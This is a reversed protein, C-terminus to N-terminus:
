ISIFGNLSSCHHFQGPWNQQKWDASGPLFIGYGLWVFELFWLRKDLAEHSWLSWKSLIYRWFVSTWLIPRDPKSEAWQWRFFFIDFRLWVFESFWSIKDIPEYCWLCCSWCFDRWYPCSVLVLQGSKSIPWALKACFVVLEELSFDSISRFSKLFNHFKYDM